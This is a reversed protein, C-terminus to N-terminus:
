LAIRQQDITGPLGYVGVILILFFVDFMEFIRKAKTAFDSVGDDFLSYQTEYPMCM